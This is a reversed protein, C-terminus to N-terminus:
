WGRTLTVEQGHQEEREGEAARQEALNQEASSEIETEEASTAVCGM